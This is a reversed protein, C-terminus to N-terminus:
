NVKTVFVSLAKFFNAKNIIIEEAVHVLYIVFGLILLLKIGFLFGLIVLLVGLVSHHIQHGFLILKLNKITM